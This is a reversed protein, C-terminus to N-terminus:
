PSPPFLGNKAVPVGLQQPERLIVDEPPVRFERFVPNLHDLHLPLDLTQIDSEISYKKLDLFQIPRLVDGPPIRLNKAVPVCLQQPARVVVNEQPAGMEQLVPNLHDLVLPLDLSTIDSQIGFCELDVNEIFHLAEPPPIRGNKAVPVCLQQADLVQVHEQPIGMEIFLPNLHDLTLPVGLFPPDAEIRYCKLDLYRVFDFIVADPFRGNKAVPVCLQQPERVIVQQPPLGMERLVPNLHDLRLRLDLSRVDGEIRYCKLDIMEVLSRIPQARAAGALVSCLVITSLMYIPRSKM